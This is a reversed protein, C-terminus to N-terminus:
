LGAPQFFHAEAIIEDICSGGEYAYSCANCLPISQWESRFQHRIRRYADGYWIDRFSDTELEGFGCKEDYDCTCLAVTGNWHIAPMNWLQKCPNHRRRIPAQAEGTYTFRRYRENQPILETHDGYPNLTKLTLVDVGLSAALDKLQPVEHENHKMLLFRLNILPRASNLQRKRAVVKRIGELVSELDGGQRYLEYTQQSIGDVAVILTDLGSRIVEEAHEHKALLQGNTSCVVKIGRGRAYSIMDYISPNLFPEGWDWLLILFVYDGIQDILKRFIRFEMSGTHRDMGTTVPCIVCRLNCRADPEIQLHTPWGWPREPRAYMSAEVLIWNLIKKLPVNRFRYPIRDCEILVSRTVLAEVAKWPKVMLDRVM